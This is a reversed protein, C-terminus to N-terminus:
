RVYFFENSIALNQLVLAWVFAERERSHPDGPAGHWDNKLFSSFIGAEKETPARGLSSQFAAYLRSSETPEREVLRSGARESAEIIWPANMLLLSQPAVSTTNRAGTPMTPDPYDFQQLIPALNNRIIPFYATRRHMEYRTHDISTHDFVFQKNRLPVTKGDLHMDLEGLQFLIGDRIEEAQLRRMPFKWLLRNEPDKESMERENPHQSDLRYTRSLVVVRHFEKMSWGSEIFDRALFDLLVPHSPKDGLLGFNETTAVIGKGFHWGWLRNVIVRATLPHRPAVLWEALELRGSQQRHFIPEQSDESLVKPFSRSVLRGRSLYNGRIHIPMEPTVRADQVGMVAAEDKAASEFLRAEEALRNIEAIKEETLAHEFKAPIALFGTPNALAAAAVKKLEEPKDSKPDFVSRYHEIMEDRSQRRYCDDWVRFLEGDGFRALYLRCNLLVRPHLSHKEAIPVCSALTCDPALEMSAALYDIVKARTAQRLEEMASSKAKNYAAQKAAVAKNLEAIEKREEDSAISIENWHKIAGTNTDAFTRTSQFIAALAYYDAQKVPDFKHDHCRACGFTLGMFVKGVTDIQEDITDVNLKERDPEALVKAGLVLFGTGTKSEVSADDLLDGAIHEKVFRHFPKNTNFSRIVYDRYRWANGFALNEDLGNSDAYRVTDLWHRGWRVGYQPSNLLRDVVREFADPSDDQEFEAIEDFTPPLGLLDQTVRRLWVRKPATPAPLLGSRSWQQEIFLDLASSPPEISPVTETEVQEGLGPIKPVDPAAIPRFSWFQRGDEISMGQLPAAPADSPKSRPDPAKQVIWEELWRIEQESLKGMPPMKLLEDQYHVAKLLLSESPNLLDIAPGTDGGTLLSDRHDLSLGGSKEKESHCELCHSDLLPRIRKEFFEAQAPSPSEEPLAVASSGGSLATLIAAVLMVLSKLTWTQLIDDRLSRAMDRM